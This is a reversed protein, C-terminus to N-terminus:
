HIYHPLRLVEPEALAAACPITPESFWAKVRFFFSRLNRPPRVLTPDLDSTKYVVDRGQSWDRAILRGDEWTSIIKSWGERGNPVFAGVVFGPIEAKKLLQDRHFIKVGGIVYKVYVLPGNVVAAFGVKDEPTLVTDGSKVPNRSRLARAAELRKVIVEAREHAHTIHLFVDKAAPDEADAAPYYLKVMDKWAKKLLESTATDERLGFVELPTLSSFYAASDSFRSDALSARPAGIVVLSLVLGVAHILM